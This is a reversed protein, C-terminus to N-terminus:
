LIIFFYSFFLDRKPLGTGLCKTRWAHLLAKHLLKHPPELLLWDKFDLPEVKLFISCVYM